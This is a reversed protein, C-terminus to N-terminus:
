YLAMGETNERRGSRLANYFGHTEEVVALAFARDLCRSDYGFKNEPKGDPKKYDRFWHLM